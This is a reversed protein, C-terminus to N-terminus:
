LWPTVINLLGPTKTETTQKPFPVGGLAALLTALQQNGQGTFGAYQGKSADILQQMMAQQQAGIGAQDQTIQRQMGFGLNGMNALQGAAGLRANYANASADQAQNYGQMRLQAAMAGADRAFNSNTEAEVLGHRSGGFAGASQFQAGVDNLAMQRARDMDAMSTDIVNKTYPNMYQSTNAYPSRGALTSTTNTAQRFANAVQNPLPVANLM